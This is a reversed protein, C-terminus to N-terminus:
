MEQCRTAAYAENERGRRRIYTEIEQESFVFGDEAPDYPVKETKHIQLLRAAAPMDGSQRDLREAQIERLQKLAKDFRISLRHEYLSLNGMIQSQERFAKAMALASHVQHNETDVTNSHGTIGLTLLNTEIAAIRNLRWSLDAVTQTLQIETKNKPQYEDLFEQCHRQYAVLDDSPLVVTQGTLGHRLANLSSRQKGSETRPGTSKQANARNSQRNTSPSGNTSPADGNAIQHKSNDSM